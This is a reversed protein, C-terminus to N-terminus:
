AALTDLHHAFFNRNHWSLAGRDLAPTISYLAGAGAGVGAVMLLVVVIASLPSRRRSVPRSRLSKSGTIVLWLAVAMLGATALLKLPSLAGMSNAIFQRDFLYQINSHHALQGLATIHEIDVAYTGAWLFILPLVAWLRCRLLAITIVTLLFSWYLDALVATGLSGLQNEVGSVILLLRSAFPFLAFATFIQLRSRSDTMFRAETNYPNISSRAWDAHYREFLQM